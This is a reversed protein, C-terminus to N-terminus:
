IKVLSRFYCHHCSTYQKQTWNVETALRSDLLKLLRTVEKIYKEGASGSPMMFNRKWHVIREYADISYQEVSMTGSTHKTIGTETSTTATVKTM